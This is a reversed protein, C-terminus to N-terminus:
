SWGARGFHAGGKGPERQPLVWRSIRPRKAHVHQHTCNRPTAPHVKSAGSQGLGCRGRPRRNSVGFFSAHRSWDESGGVRRTLRRIALRVASEGPTPARRARHPAPRPRPPPTAPPTRRPAPGTSLRPPSPGSAPRTAASPRTYHGVRRLDEDRDRPQAAIPTVVAREHLRRALRRPLLPHRIQRRVLNEVNSPMTPLQTTQLRQEGEAVRRLVPPGLGPDQEVLFPVVRCQGVDPRHRDPHQLLGTQKGVEVGPDHGPLLEVPSTRETRVFPLSGARVHISITVVTWWSPM